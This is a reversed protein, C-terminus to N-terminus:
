GAGTPGILGTIRGAEVKLDVGTLAHVGYFSREVQSVELLAM